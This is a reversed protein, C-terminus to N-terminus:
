YSIPLIRTKFSYNYHKQIKKNFINFNKITIDEIKEYPIFFYSYLQPEMNSINILLQIGKARLPIIGLGKDTANILLGDFGDIGDIIGQSFAAVAGGIAGFGVYKAAEKNSDKHTVFIINENGACNVGKFIELVEEYTKYNM